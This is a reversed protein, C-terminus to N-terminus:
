CEIRTVTAIESWQIPRTANSRSRHRGRDPQRYHWLLSVVDNLCCLSCWDFWLSKILFGRPLYVASNDRRGSPTRVATSRRAYSRQPARAPDRRWRKVTKRIQRKVGHCVAILFFTFESCAPLFRVLYIFTTKKGREEERELKLDGFLSLSWTATVTVSCVYVKRAGLLYADHCQKWLWVPTDPVSSIGEIIRSPFRTQKRTM